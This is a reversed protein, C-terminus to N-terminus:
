EEEDQALMPDYIRGCKPCKDMPVWTVALSSEGCFMCRYSDGCRIQYLHNDRCIREALRQAEEREVQSQPDRMSDM